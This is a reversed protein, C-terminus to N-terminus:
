MTIIMNHQLLFVKHVLSTPQKKVIYSQSFTFLRTNFIDKQMKVIDLLKQQLLLQFYHWQKDSIHVVIFHFESHKKEIQSRHLNTSVLVAVSDANM